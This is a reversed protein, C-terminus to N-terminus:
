ALNEMNKPHNINLICFPISDENVFTVNVESKDMGIAGQNKERVNQNSKEKDKGMSKKAGNKRDERAKKPTSTFISDPMSSLGFSGAQYVVEKDIKSKKEARLKRRRERYKVSIKVAAKKVRKENHKKIALLMNHGPQIGFSSILDSKGTAGKNFHCVAECVATELRMRGCFKPKPCISWLIGNLAENQNQTLGMLCRELLHDATLREFLPRLEKLFVSSLRKSDNYVAGEKWFKCWTDKSKPCFDHQKELSENDNRIVHKYIAWVAKKMGDKNGVNERIATGFYNQMKDCINDTLRGKGSAVKGDSLKVGRNKRKYERLGSGLRKQVHGVCEEKRIGYEEGYEALCKQYVDGYCSSDGDGVFTTYRLGKNISQLFISVAGASEMAASSGVHNIQCEKEHAIKWQMFKETTPDDDRHHACEYCFLSKVEYDLVQGTRVSLVFVVGMKSNHGRKQWTGDVTVAVNCVVSGDDMIHVDHPSEEHTITILHNAAEKLVLETKEKAKLFVHKNIKNYPGQNVPPPMNMIGCFQTLGSHGMSQSAYVSRINVEPIPQSSLIITKSTRVETEAKCATCRIILSESLGKRKKPQGFLELKGRKKKCVRCVCASNFAAELQSSDFLKFGQAKVIRSDRLRVSSSRTNVLSEESKNSEILLKEASRNPLEKFITKQVEGEDASQEDHVIDAVVQGEEVISCPEVGNGQEEGHPERRDKKSSKNGQFGKRKRAFKKRMARFKMKKETNSHDSAEM